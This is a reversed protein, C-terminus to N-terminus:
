MMEPFQIGLLFDLLIIRHANVVVNRCDVNLCYLAFVTLAELDISFSDDPKRMLRAASSAAPREIESFILPSIAPIHLSESVGLILNGRDLGSFASQVFHGIHEDSHFLQNNM